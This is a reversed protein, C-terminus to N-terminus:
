CYCTMKGSSSAKSYFIINKKMLEAVGNLRIVIQPSFSTSYIDVLHNANLEPILHDIALKGVYGM